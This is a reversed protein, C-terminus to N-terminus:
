KDKYIHIFGKVIDVTPNGYYFSIGTTKNDTETKEDIKPNTLNDESILVSGTQDNENKIESAQIKDKNWDSYATELATQMTMSNTELDAHNLSEQSNFMEDFNFTEILLYRSQRRGIFHNLQELSAEQTELINKKLKIKNLHSPAQFYFYFFCKLWSNFNSCFIFIKCNYKFIEQIHTTASPKFKSELKNELNIDDIELRIIVLSIQKPHNNSQNITTKTSIVENKM